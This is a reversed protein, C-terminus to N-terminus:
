NNYRTKVIPFGYSKFYYNRSHDIPVQTLISNPWTHDNNKM